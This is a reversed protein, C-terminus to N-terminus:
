AEHMCRARPRVRVAGGDEGTEDEDDVYNPDHKIYQLCAAVIADV